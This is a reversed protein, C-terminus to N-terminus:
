HSFGIVYANRQLRECYPLFLLILISFLMLLVGILKNDVSRLM